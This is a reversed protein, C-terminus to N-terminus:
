WKWGQSLRWELLWSTTALTSSFSNRAILAWAGTQDLTLHYNNLRIFPCLARTHFLLIFHSELRCCTLTMHWTYLITPRTPRTISLHWSLQAPFTTQHQFLLILNITFDTNEFLMPIQQTIMLEPLEHSPVRSLTLWQEHRLNSTRTNSM